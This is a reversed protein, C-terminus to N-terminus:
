FEPELWMLRPTEWGAWDATGDGAPGTETALTLHIAQGAYRDLPIFVEHWKQDVPDKTVHYRYLEMTAGDGTTVTVVFTCGDGGWQWSDPALAVRSHLAVPELPLSLRYSLAAPPHMFLVAGWDGDDPMAFQWREIPEAPNMAVVEVSGAEFRQMLDEVTLVALADQNKADLELLNAAAHRALDDQSAAQYHALLGSYIAWALPTRRNDYGAPLTPCQVLSENWHQEARLFDRDAVLLAALDQQLLCQPSPADALPIIQEYLNITKELVTGQQSRNHVVFLKDQFPVVEMDPQSFQTPKNWNMLVAWVEARSGALTADAPGLTQGGVLRYPQGLKQQYYPLSEAVINYGNPFNLALALIVSDDEAAQDLYTLIARWDNLVYDYEHQLAPVALWVITTVLVLRGMWAQSHGWRQGIWSTARDLALGIGMLYLPLM